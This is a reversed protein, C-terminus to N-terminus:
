VLLRSHASRGCGDGYWAMSAAMSPVEVMFSGEVPRVHASMLAYCEYVCAAHEAFFLLLLM